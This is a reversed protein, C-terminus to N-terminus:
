RDDLPGASCEVGALIHHVVLDGSHHGSHLGDYLLFRSRAYIDSRGQSLQLERRDRKHPILKPPNQQRQYITRLVFLASHNKTLKSPLHVCCLPACPVYIVSSVVHCLSSMACFYVYFFCM